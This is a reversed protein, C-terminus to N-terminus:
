SRAGEYQRDDAQKMEEQVAGFADFARRWRAITEEDVEVNFKEDTNPDIEYVPYWEQARLSILIKKAAESM